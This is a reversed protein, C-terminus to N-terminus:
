DSRRVFGILAALGGLSLWLAAPVPVVNVAAGTYDVSIVAFTNFDVWPGAVSATDMLAVFSSDGIVRFTVAGLNQVGTIGSRFDGVAIGSLLGDLVDPERAFGPDGVPNAAWEVFQLASSDFAIDFGGGITTVDSFDMIVDFSVLSGLTSDASPPSLSLSAANAAGTTAILLLVSAAIRSITM